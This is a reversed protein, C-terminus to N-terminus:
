TQYKVLMHWSSVNWYVNVYHVCKINNLRICACPHPTIHVNMIKWLTLILFFYILMSLYRNFPPWNVSGSLKYICPEKRYRNLLRTLTIILQRKCSKSQSPIDFCYSLSKSHLSHWSRMESPTTQPVTKCWKSKKM